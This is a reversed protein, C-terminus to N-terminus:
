NKGEGAENSLLMHSSREQSIKKERRTHARQNFSLRDILQRKNFKVEEIREKVMPPFVMLGLVLGAIILVIGVLPGILIWNSM